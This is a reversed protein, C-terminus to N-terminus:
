RRPLVCEKYRQGIDARVLYAGGMCCITGLTKLKKACINHISEITYSAVDSVVIAPAEEEGLELPPVEPSVGMPELEPDVNGLAAIAPMAAPANISAM